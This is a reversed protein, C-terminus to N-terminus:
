KNSIEYYKNSIKEDSYFILKDYSFKWPAKKVCFYNSKNISFYLYILYILVIPFIILNLMNIWKQRFIKSRDNWLIIFCILGLFFPIVFNWLLIFIFIPIIFSLLFNEYWTKYFYDSINLNITIKKWNYLIDRIRKYIAYIFLLIILYIFYFLYKDGNNLKLIDIFFNFYWLIFFIIIFLFLNLLADIYRLKKFIEYTIIQFKMKLIVKKKERKGLIYNQSNLFNKNNQLLNNQTSPNNLTQTNIM